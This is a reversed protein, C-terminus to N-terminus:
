ATVAKLAAVDRRPPAGFMRAYERNFQSASEYGVQFAAAEANVGGALLLHRAELLRLQKQYQLPTVSTLAKFQRRFASPSLQAIAALEDVRVTRAFDQRLAHVAKVIRQTHSGSLVMRAVEGGQPGTLLWYYLERLVLPALLSIAEPTGLLRVLRLVCEELPGAIETLFVGQETGTEVAPPRPLSGLVEGLVALDFEIALGLYPQAPTAEVVHSLAPMEVSVILAQGARYEFRQEGFTSCKAGQVVVCLSPKFILCSPHKRHDSRLLTLGPIATPYPNPGAQGDTYRQVAEALTSPWDTHNWFSM